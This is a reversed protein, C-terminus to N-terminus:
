KQRMQSISDVVFSIEELTIDHFLPLCLVQNAIEEAVPLNKTKFIRFEPFDSVLPYFYKRAVINKKELHAAVEDRSAGFHDPHIRIPFYTYNYTVNEEKAILEIGKIGSLMDTYKLSAQKRDAIVKDIHRLQVLAFAAQMENMKANM